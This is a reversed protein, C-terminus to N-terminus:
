AKRYRFRDVGVEVHHGRGAADSPDTALVYYFGDPPDMRVRDEQEMFLMSIPAFLIHSTFALGEDEANNVASNTNRKPTPSPQLWGRFSTLDPDDEIPFGQADETGTYEAKVHVLSHPFNM